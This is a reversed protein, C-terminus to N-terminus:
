VFNVFLFTESQKGAPSSQIYKKVSKAIDVTRRPQRLMNKPQQSKPLDFQKDQLWAMVEANTLLGDGDPGSLVKM